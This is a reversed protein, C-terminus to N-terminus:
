IFSWLIKYIESMFTLRFTWPGDYRNKCSSTLSCLSFNNEESQSIPTRAVPVAYALGEARGVMSMLPFKRVCMDASNGEFMEGLGESTM